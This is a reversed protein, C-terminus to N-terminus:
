LVIVWHTNRCMHPFVERQKLTTKRDKITFGLSEAIDRAKTPPVNLDPTNLRFLYLEGKNLEAADPYLDKLNVNDDISSQLSRVNEIYRVEAFSVNSTDVGKLSFVWAVGTDEDEFEFRGRQKLADRLDATNNEVAKVLKNILEDTPLRQEM